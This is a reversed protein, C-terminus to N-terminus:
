NADDEETALSEQIKVPLGMFINEVKATAKGMLPLAQAKVNNKAMEWLDSAAQAEDDGEDLEASLNIEINANNFDGLNIKRGYTVSITKLKM